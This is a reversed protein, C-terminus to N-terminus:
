HPPNLLPLPNPQVDKNSPGAAGKKAAQEWPIGWLSGLQILYVHHRGRWLEPGERSSLLSSSLEPKSAKTRKLVVSLAPSPHPPKVAVPQRSSSPSACWRQLVRVTAMQLQDWWVGTHLFSIPTNSEVVGYIVIWSQISPVSGVPFILLNLPGNLRHQMSRMPVDACNLEHTPHAPPESLVFLCIKLLCLCSQTVACLKTGQIEETVGREEGEFM